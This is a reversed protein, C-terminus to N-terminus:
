KKRAVLWVGALILVMGAVHFPHLTEGLLTTALLIGYLPVLHLFAGARAPGIQEVGRNWAVYALVSTVLATYIIAALSTLDWPLPRGDLHEHLWFPLSVISSLLRCPQRRKRSQHNPLRILHHFVM